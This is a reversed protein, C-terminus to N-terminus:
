TKKGATLWRLLELAPVGVAGGIAASLLWGLPAPHPLNTSQSVRLLVAALLDVLWSVTFLAYLIGAFGLYELVLRRWWPRRTTEAVLPVDPQPAPSANVASTATSM